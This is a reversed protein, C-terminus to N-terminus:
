GLEKSIRKINCSLEEEDLLGKADEEMERCPLPLVLFLTLVMFVSFLRLVCQRYLM